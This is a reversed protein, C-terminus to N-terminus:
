RLLAAIIRVSATDLASSAYSKATDVYGATTATASDVTEKGEAVAQATTEKLGNQLTEASSETNHPFKDQLKIDYTVRSVASACM